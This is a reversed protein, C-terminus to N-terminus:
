TDLQSVKSVIIGREPIDYIDRESSMLNCNIPQNMMINGLIAESIVDPPLLIANDERDNNDEFLRMRIICDSDDLELIPAKLLLLPSLVVSFNWIM